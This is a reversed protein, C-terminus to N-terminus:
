SIDIDVVALTNKITLVYNIECCRITIKILYQTLHTIVAEYFLCFWQAYGREDTGLKSRAINNRSPGRWTKYVNKIWNVMQSVTLWGCVCTHFDIAGWSRLIARLTGTNGTQLTISGRALWRFIAAYFESQSQSAAAGQVVVVTAPNTRSSSSAIQLSQICTFTLTPYRGVWLESHLRPVALSSQSFIPPHSKTIVYKNPSHAFASRGSLTRTKSPAVTCLKFLM